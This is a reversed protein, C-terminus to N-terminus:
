WATASRGSDRADSRPSPGCHVRVVRQKRVAGIQYRSRDRLDMDDGAIPSPADGHDGDRYPRWFVTRLYKCGVEGATRHERFPYGRHRWTRRRRGLLAAQPNLQRPDCVRSVLDDVQRVRGCFCDQSSTRVVTGPTLSRVPPAGGFTFVLGAPDADFDIPYDVLVPCAPVPEGPMM